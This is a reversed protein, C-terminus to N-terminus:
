QSYVVRVGRQGLFDILNRAVEGSLQPGESSGLLCEVPVISVEASSVMKLLGMSISALGM